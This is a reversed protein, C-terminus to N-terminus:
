LSVGNIAAFVCALAPVGFIWAGFALMFLEVNRTNPRTSWEWVKPNYAVPLSIAVAIMGVALFIAPGAHGEAASQAIM